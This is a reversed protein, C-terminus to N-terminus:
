EDALSADFPKLVGNELVKIQQEVKELSSRCRALLKAGQQYSELSQELSLSGDEMARVISELQELAQEFNLSEVDTKEATKETTKKNTAAM